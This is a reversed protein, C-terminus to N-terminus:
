SKKNTVTGSKFLISTLILLLFAKWYTLKMVGFIVAITANWCWMVPFAMIFIMVLVILFGFTMLGIGAGAATLLALFKQM